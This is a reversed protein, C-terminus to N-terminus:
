QEAKIVVLSGVISLKPSNKFFGLCWMSGGL